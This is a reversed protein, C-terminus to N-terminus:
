SSIKEYIGGRNGCSKYTHKQTNMCGEVYCQNTECANHIHPRTQLCNEVDCVSPKINTQKAYIVNCALLLMIVATMLLIKKM